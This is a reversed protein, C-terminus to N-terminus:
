DRALKIAAGPCNRVLAEARDDDVASAAPLVTAIGDDNLQFVEPAALVCEGSSMCDGESVVFQV